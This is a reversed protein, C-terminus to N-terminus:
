KYEENKKEFEDNKVERELACNQIAINLVSMVREAPNVWSQM